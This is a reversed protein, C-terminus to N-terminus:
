RRRPKWRYGNYRCIDWFEVQFSLNKQCRTCPSRLFPRQVRGQVLYEAYYGSEEYTNTVRVRGVVWSDNKDFSGDPARSYNHAFLNPDLMWPSRLVDM